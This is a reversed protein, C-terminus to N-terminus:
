INAAKLNSVQQHVWEVIHQVDDQREIVLGHGPQKALEIGENARRPLRLRDLVIGYTVTLKDMVDRRDGTQNSLILHPIFIAPKVPSPPSVDFWNRHFKEIPPGKISKMEWNDGSAVQGLLYDTGAAGDRSPRWAIVDIEEDKPSPSTGPLPAARVQGEGFIAYVEQLRQLFPPNENPRPWGFSIASGTVEGAAALTSCAQFLDRTRHTIEPQWRGDLIDGVKSHSLILCFLYIHAGPTPEDKLKLVAGGSIVEFPYASGLIHSRDDIETSIADLFADVDEGNVGEDDTDDEPAQKGEPDSFETERNVDWIRKLKHLSYRSHPAAIVSMELWDCIHAPIAKLQPAKIAM